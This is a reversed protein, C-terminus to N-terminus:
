LNRLTASKSKLLEDIQTKYMDKVDQLDLRLEQAEEVKEGYMQLLANYRQDLETYKQQLAAHQSLKATLDENQICLNVLERAMSERTRELEAIDSQLQQIEGERQKLESQLSEILTTANTSQRLSDYLSMRSGNVSTSMLFMKENVDSQQQAPTSGSSPPTQPISDERAFTVPSPSVSSRMQLLMEKEHLQDHLLAVKKKGTEVKMREMELQSELLMKEKKLETLELELKQRAADKQATENNKSEEILEVKTRELELEALLRSREQRLSSIQSELSALRVNAEMLKETAFRENETVTALQSQAEVLRDTLNKEVREYSSTQAAFTSQLNEIQRLLPRTVGSVSQTLEQNREEAEQLRQQLDSIEQRLIDEHRGHEKEMRSLSLQLDEMQTVLALREQKTQQRLEDLAGALQEKAAVEIDLAAKQAESVHTVRAKHLESIEKYANDLTAKVSRYKEQADELDSKLRNVEDEQAKVLVNLQSITDNNKKEADVKTGLIHELREIELKQEEIKQKQSNIMLENEKEKSRLKKITNSNQLQKKSLKEGEDMLEAIIQEKEKLLKESVINESRRAIEMEADHLSAKLSDRERFTAQLRKEVDALRRTFDDKM